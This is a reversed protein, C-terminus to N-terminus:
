PGELVNPLVLNLAAAALRGAQSPKRAHAGFHRGAEANNRLGEGVDQASLPEAATDFFERALEIEAVEGIDFGSARFDARQHCGGGDGVLESAVYALLIGGEDRRGVAM